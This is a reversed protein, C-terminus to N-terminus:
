LDEKEIEGVENWNQFYVKLDDLESWHPAVTQQKGMHYVPYGETVKQTIMYHYVNLPKENPLLNDEQRIWDIGAVPTQGTFGTPVPALGSAFVGFSTEVGFHGKIKVAVNLPIENIKWEGEGVLQKYAEETLYFNPRTSISM